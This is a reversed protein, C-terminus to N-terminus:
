RKPLHCIDAGKEPYYFFERQEVNGSQVRSLKEDLLDSLDSEDSGYQLGPEDDDIQSGGGGM